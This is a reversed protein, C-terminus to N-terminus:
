QENQAYGNKIKLKDTKCTETTPETRYISSVGTPKGARTLIADRTTDYREQNGHITANMM